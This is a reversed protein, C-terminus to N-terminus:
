SNIKSKILLIIGWIGGLFLVEFVGMIHIVYAFSFNHLLSILHNIGLLWCLVTSQVTLIKMYEINKKILTLIIVCIIGINWLAIERQWGVNNGWSTFKGGLYPLCFQWIFAGICAILMFVLYFTYHKITIDKKLHKM